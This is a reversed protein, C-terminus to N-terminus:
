STTHVGSEYGRDGYGRDMYGRVTDMIQEHTIPIDPISVMPDDAQLVAQQQGTLPNEAWIERLLFTGRRWGNAEVKHGIGERQLATVAVILYPFLNLARAFMTLGFELRDGPAYYPTAGLPPEITYPRPLDAGRRGEDDVTALLFSVPCHAHVPCPQCSHFQPQLCFNRRLVNFLAGRIASGQHENLAIPTQVEAVFRLRHATFHHM